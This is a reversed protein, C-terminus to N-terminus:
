CPVIRHYPRSPRGYDEVRIKGADFLRRMAAALDDKRLGTAAAEKSFAAPAHGPSNAKDSVNRGQSAFTKLLMLFVEDAKQERALKDLNSMGGEPLFLGRQYRLVITEGMPGYQNKKFELERLDGDPQEGSDAKAGKLYQRFRFAGHWATSGSIGSGSAIGALSPHSLVTVSGGAVVALAQMHMAFAYVQARDIENGDFARSLTDISINKPKIDGAAEFLRRYLDTVELRGSKGTACLTADKGLLCLVLLGHEILDKFTVGYHKAIDALRIHIEDEDDEAGIYFAPGPEPLSGLWDRGAVHAVDKTLELISKGTGGEGSFLGAQNLPVRDRIAWKRKPVPGSDWTSMDLWQLGENETRRQTQQHGENSYCDSHGFEGRLHDKIEAHPEQEGASLGSALTAQVADPGDDNMLGNAFCAKTLADGVAAREIWGRVVMTGMRFAAANLANNRGGPKAKALEPAIGELAGQAYAAERSGGYRAKADSGNTRAGLRRKGIRDVLWAPPTPIAGARYSDLLSPSGEGSQWGRGNTLRSGPAIVYGGDNETKFGRTELGPGIKKNGVERDPLQKFYHHEGNNATRTWPHPPWEGNEARIARLAEIGDENDKHRDADIVILGLRKLPLGILADPWKEWWRRIAGEDTSANTLWGALLPRKDLGCPFIPIVSAAYELAVELNKGGSAPM